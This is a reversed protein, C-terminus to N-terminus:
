ILAGIRCAIHQGNINIGNQCIETAENVFDKLFDNVDEPKENGQYLGIMFVNDYPIISGLIPWFQQQSSKTLPLGDINIAITLCDINDKKSFIQRLSKELGFHYYLGPVVTRIDQHRPTKLVTRADSSLTSFCPHKRLLLLLARLSTHTIQHEIAWFSLDDQFNSEHESAVDSLEDRSVNFSSQQSESENDSQRNEHQVFINNNEHQVFINNERQVFDVNDFEMNEIDITSNNIDQNRDINVEKNRDINRTCKSDNRSLSINQFINKCIFDAQQAALRRLHRKSVHLTDKRQRKRDM